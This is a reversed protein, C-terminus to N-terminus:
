APAQHHFYTSFDSALAAWPLMYGAVLAGFSLITGAAAPEAPVVQRSLYKGGTGVTIIIAILAPIWAYREYTHLVKYGCFSICLALICIIVIGVDVSLNGNSVAALTQGGIVSDM